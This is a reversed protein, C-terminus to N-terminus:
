AHPPRARAPRRSLAPAEAHTASGWCTSMLRTIKPPERPPSPKRLHGSVRPTRGSPRALHSVGGDAPSSVGGRAEGRGPSVGTAPTRILPRHPLRRGPGLPGSLARALGPPRHVPERMRRGISVPHQCGGVSAPPRSRRDQSQCLGGPQRPRAASARRCDDSHRNIPPSRPCRPPEQRRRRHYLVECTAGEGARRFRRRTPM